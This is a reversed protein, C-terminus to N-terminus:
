DIPDKVVARLAELGLPIDGKVPCLVGGVTALRVRIITVVAVAFGLSVREGQM